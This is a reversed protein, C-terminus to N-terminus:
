NIKCPLPICGEQLLMQCGKGGRADVLVERKQQCARKCLAAMEGECSVEIAVIKDALAMILRDRRRNNEGIAHDDLRFCSLALDRESQFCDDRIRAARFLANAFEPGMAERLGRDLVYVAPRNLRQACLALRQYPTRDHGTVPIGGQALLASAAEEQRELAEKPANRSLAMAFTFNGEGAPALLAASGRAYLVPPPADHNRELRDPWAVSMCHILKVDHRRLLRATQLAQELLISRHMELYEVSRANLEYVTQWTEPQMAMFEEPTVRQTAGTRLLRALTKEGIHPVSHLLLAFHAGGYPEQPDRVNRSM